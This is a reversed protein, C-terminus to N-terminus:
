ACPSAEILPEALDLLDIYVPRPASTAESWLATATVSDRPLFAVRAAADKAHLTDSLKSHRLLTTM